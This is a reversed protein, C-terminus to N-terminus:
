RDITVVGSRRDLNVKYSMAWQYGTTITVGTASAATGSFAIVGGQNYIIDFSTGSYSTGGAVMDIIQYRPDNDFFRSTGWLLTQSNTGETRKVAGTSISIVVTGQTKGLTTTLRESQLIGELAHAIRQSSQAARQSSVGDYSFLTIVLGIIAMTVM